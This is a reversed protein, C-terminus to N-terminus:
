NIGNYSYFVLNYLIMFSIWTTPALHHHSSASSLDNYWTQHTGDEHVYQHQYYNCLNTDCCNVSSWISENIAVTYSESLCYTRPACLMEYLNTDNKHNLQCVLETDHCQIQKPPYNFAMPNNSGSWCEKEAVANTSLVMQVLFLLIITFRM